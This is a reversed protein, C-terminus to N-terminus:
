GLEELLKRLHETVITRLRDGQDETELARARRVSQATEGMRFPFYRLCFM